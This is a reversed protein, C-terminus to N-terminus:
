LEPKIIYGEDTKRVFFISLVCLLYVLLPLGHLFQGAFLIYSLVNFLQVCFYLKTFLHVRKYIKVGKATIQMFTSLAGLASVLLYALILVTLRMGVLFFYYQIDLHTDAPANFFPFIDRILYDVEFYRTSFHVVKDLHMVDLTIFYFLYHMHSCFIALLLWSVVRVLINKQDRFM